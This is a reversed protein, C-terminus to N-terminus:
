GAINTSILLSVFLTRKQGIKTTELGWVRHPNRARNKQRPNLLRRLKSKNSLKPKSMTTKKNWLLTSLYEARLCKVLQKPVQLYSSFNQNSIRNSIIQKSTDANVCSSDLRSWGNRFKESHWPRCQDADKQRTQHWRKTKAMPERNQDEAISDTTSHM